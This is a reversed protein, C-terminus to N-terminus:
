VHYHISHISGEPGQNVLGNYGQYSGPYYSGEGDSHILKYLAEIIYHCSFYFRIKHLPVAQEFIQHGFSNQASWFISIMEVSHSLVRYLIPMSFSIYIMPYTM